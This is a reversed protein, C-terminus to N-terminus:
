SHKMVRERQTDLAKFKELELEMKLLDFSKELEAVRSSKEQAILRASQLQERPHSIEQDYAEWDM